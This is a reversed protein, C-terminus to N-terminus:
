AESIVRLGDIGAFDSPNHTVLELGRALATAAIWSDALPLPRGTLRARAAMDAWVRCLREDSHHVSFTRLYRELMRRRAPGWRREIPWRLLEAATMFSIVGERGQLHPLYAAARTDYKVYLSLVSTDIVRAEPM